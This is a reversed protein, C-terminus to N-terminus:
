HKDYCASHLPCVTFPGESLIKEERMRIRMQERLISQLILLSYEVLFIIHIFPFLLLSSFLAPHYVKIARATMEIMLFSRARESKLLFRVRGLHRVNIGMRHMEDVLHYTDM